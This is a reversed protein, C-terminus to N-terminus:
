RRVKTHVFPRKGRGRIHVEPSKQLNIAVVGWVTIKLDGFKGLVEADGHQTLQHLNPLLARVVDFSPSPNKNRCLNSITWTVNRMFSNTQNTDNALALLPEIIGFNVTLDRLIPGDGAINGLYIKLIYM